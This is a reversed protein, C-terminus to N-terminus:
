GDEQHVHKAAQQTFLLGGDAVKSVKNSSDNSKQDPKNKESVATNLM